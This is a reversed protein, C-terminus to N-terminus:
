CTISIAQTEAKPPIHLLLLRPPEGGGLVCEELPLTMPYFCGQGAAKVCEAILYFDCAETAQHRSVLASKTKAM